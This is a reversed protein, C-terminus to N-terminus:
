HLEWRHEAQETVDPHFSGKGVDGEGPGVDVGAVVMGALVAPASQRGEHEGCIVNERARPRAGESRGKAWTVGSAPAPWLPQSLMTVQQMGQLRRFPSLVGSSIPK